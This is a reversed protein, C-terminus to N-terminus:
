SRTKSQELCAIRRMPMVLALSTVGRPCAVRQADIAADACRGLLHRTVM